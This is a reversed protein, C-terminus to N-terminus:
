DKPIVGINVQAVSTKKLNGARVKRALEPECPAHGEGAHMKAWISKSAERAAEAKTGTLRMTLAGGCICALSLTRLKEAPM